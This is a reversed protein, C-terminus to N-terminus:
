TLAEAIVPAVWQALSDAATPTLQALPPDSNEVPRLGLWGGDLHMWAIVSSLGGATIMCRLGGDSHSLRRVLAATTPDLGALVGSIDRRDGRDLRALGLSHLIDLPIRGTPASGTRPHPGPEPPVARRLEHPLTVARFWSVERSGDPGAFLSAGRDGAVCHVGHSIHERLTVATDITIEPAGLVRLVDLPPGPVREEAPHGTSPAWGPPMRAGSDLVARHFAAASLVLRHVPPSTTERNTM